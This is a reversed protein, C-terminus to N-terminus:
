TKCSSAILEAAAKSSRAGLCKVCLKEFLRLQQECPPVVGAFVFRAAPDFTLNKTQTFWLHVPDALNITAALAGGPQRECMAPSM